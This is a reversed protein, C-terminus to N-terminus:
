RDVPREPLDDETKAEVIQMAVSLRHGARAFAAIQRAKMRQDDIVPGFPGLRKRRAFDLAAALPDHSDLVAERIDTEVGATALSQRVRGAGMGRRALGRARSRAYEEDNVYGLEVMRDATSEALDHDAGDALGRQRVKQQLHRALRARSTQYREVYRIAIAELAGRDLPPPPKRPQRERRNPPM